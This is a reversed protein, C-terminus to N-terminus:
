FVSIFLILLICVIRMCNVIFISSPNSFDVSIGKVVLNRSFFNFCISMSLSYDFLGVSFVICRLFFNDLDLDRLYKM